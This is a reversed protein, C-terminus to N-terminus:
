GVLTRNAEVLEILVEWTRERKKKILYIIISKKKKEKRCLLLYRILHNGDQPLEECRVVAFEECHDPLIEM